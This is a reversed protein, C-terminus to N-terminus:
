LVDVLPAIELPHADLEAILDGLPEAELHVPDVDLEVRLNGPQLATAPVEDHRPEEEGGLAGLDHVEDRVLELSDADGHGLAIGLLDRLERIERPTRHGYLDTAVLLPLDSADV